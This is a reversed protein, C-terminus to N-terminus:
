RTGNKPLLSNNTLHQQNLRGWRCKTGRQPQGQEFKASIKSMQFSTGASNHPTAQMIRHKAM